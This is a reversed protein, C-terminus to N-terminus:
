KNNSLQYIRVENFPKNNYDTREIIKLYLSYLDDNEICIKDDDNLNAIIQRLEGVTQIKKRTEITNKKQIVSEGCVLCTDLLVPQGEECIPCNRYKINNYDIDEKLQQNIIYKKMEAIGFIAKVWNCKEIVQKYKNDTKEM